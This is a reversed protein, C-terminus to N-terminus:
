KKGYDENLLKEIDEKIMDIGQVSENVNTIGSYYVLPTGYDNVRSRIYGNKDILAFFGQHEFGGDFWPYVGSWGTFNM